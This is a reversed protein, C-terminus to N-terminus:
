SIKSKLYGAIAGDYDSTNEFVKIALKCNTERSVEGGLKEMDDLVIAYDKNDTIVTVYEFNKASSRLM